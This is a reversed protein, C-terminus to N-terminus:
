RVGPSVNKQLQVRCFRDAVTGAVLLTAVRGVMRVDKRGKIGKASSRASLLCM